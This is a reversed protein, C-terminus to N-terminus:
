REARSRSSAIIINPRFYPVTVAVVVSALTGASAQDAYRDARRAGTEGGTAGCTRDYGFDIELAHSDADPELHLRLVTATYRSGVLRSLLHSFERELEGLPIEKLPRVQLPDRRELDALDTM